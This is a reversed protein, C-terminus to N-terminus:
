EGYIRESFRKKGNNMMDVYRKYLVTVVSLWAVVQKRPIVVPTVMAKVNKVLVRPMVSTMHEITSKKILNISLFVLLVPVSLFKNGRENVNADKNKTIINFFIRKGPGKSWCYKIRGSFKPWPLRNCIANIRAIHHRIYM